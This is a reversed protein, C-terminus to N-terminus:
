NQWASKDSCIAPEWAGLEQAASISTDDVADRLRSEANHYRALDIAGFTGMLMIASTALFTLAVAGRQNRHLRHAFRRLPKIPSM